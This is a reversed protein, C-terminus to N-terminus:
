SVTEKGPERAAVTRAARLLGHALATGSSHGVAVLRAVAADLDPRHGALADAVDTAAPVSHGRAAHHLLATSLATTRSSALTTAEWALPDRLGPHHHLGVLLGALVDDGAPTLGPGLGLLETVTADVPVPSPHADLLAAMEALREGAAGRRPLRPAWWRTVRVTLAGVTLARDGVLAGDGQRVGTLPADARDVGLRVACPLGLADATELAVLESGVLVYACSPHVGVVVGGRPPGALLAAVGTSAAGVWSTM